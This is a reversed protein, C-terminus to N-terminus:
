SRSYVELVMLDNDGMYYIYTQGVSQDCSLYMKAGKAEMEPWNSYNFEKVGVKTFPLTECGQVDFILPPVFNAIVDGENEQCITTGESFKMSLDKNFVMKDDRKCNNISSWISQWETATAGPKTYERLVNTLKWSTQSMASMNNFEITHILEEDEPLNLQPYIGQEVQQLEWNSSDRKEIFIYYQGPEFIAASEFRGALDTTLTAVVNQGTLWDESNKFIEVTAGAIQTNNVSVVSGTFAIMEEKKCSTVTGLLLSLISLFFLKKLLQIKM